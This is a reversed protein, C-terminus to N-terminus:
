SLKISEAEEHTFKRKAQFTKFYKYHSKASHGRCLMTEALPFYERFSKVSTSDADQWNLEVNMGEEKAQQFLLSAAYGEAFNSTGEYLPDSCM